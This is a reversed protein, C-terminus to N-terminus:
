RCYGALHLRAHTMFWGVVQASYFLKLRARLVDALEELDPVDLAVFEDYDPTVSAVAIGVVGTEGGYVVSEWDDESIPEPFTDAIGFERPTRVYKSIVKTYPRGTIENFREVTDSVHKTTYPVGFVVVAHHTVGM